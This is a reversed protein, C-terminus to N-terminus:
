AQRHKVTDDDSPSPAYRQCNPPSFSHESTNCLRAERRACCTSCTKRFCLNKETTPLFPTVCSLWIWVWAERHASSSLKRGSPDTLQITSADQLAKHPRPWLQRNRCPVAMFPVLVASIYAGPESLGEQSLSAVHCLTTISWGSFSPVM